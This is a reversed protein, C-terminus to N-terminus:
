VKGIIKKFFHKILAKLTIDGPRTYSKAIAFNNLIDSGTLRAAAKYINPKAEVKAIKVALEAKEADTLHKEALRDIIGKEVEMGGALLRSAFGGYQKFGAELDEGLTTEYTSAARIGNRDKIVWQNTLEDYYKEAM